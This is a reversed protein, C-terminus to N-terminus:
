RDRPIGNTHICFELPISACAQHLNLILNSTANQPRLHPRGTLFRGIATMANTFSLTPLVNTESMRKRAFKASTFVIVMNLIMENGDQCAKGNRVNCRLNKKWFLIKQGLLM